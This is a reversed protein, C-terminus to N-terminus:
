RRFYPLGWAVTIGLGAPCPTYRQDLSALTRELVRRAEALAQRTEAVAIRATVIRHHLPPVIVEVGDDEIVQLDRLLHQEVFAPGRSRPRQPRQAARDVLRYLAFPDAAAAALATAFQRRTLKM